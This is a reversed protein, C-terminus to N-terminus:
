SDVYVAGNLLILRTGARLTCTFMSLNLGHNNLILPVCFKMKNSLKCTHNM